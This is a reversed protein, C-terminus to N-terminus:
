PPSPVLGLALFGQRYIQWDFFTPSLQSAVAPILWVLAGAVFVLAWVPRSMRRDLANIRTQHTV